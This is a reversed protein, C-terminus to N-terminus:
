IEHDSTEVNWPLVTIEVSIYTDEDVPFNPDEPNTDDDPDVGPVYPLGPGTIKNINLVYFNNRLVGRVNEADQVWIRYYGIGNEYKKSFHAATYDTGIASQYATESWFTNDSKKVYFSTGAAITGKTRTGGATYGTIVTNATPTFQLKIIAATTNGVMKKANVNELAYYSNLLNNAVSYENVATWSTPTALKTFYENNPTLTMINQGPTVVTEYTDGGQQVLYSQKAEVVLAYELNAVSGGVVELTAAKKKVAIKATNRQVQMPLPAGLAEAATQVTALTTPVGSDSAMVFGNSTIFDPDAVGNIPTDGFIGGKQASIADQLDTTPNLVAYVTKNGTTTKLATTLKYVNGGVLTFDAVSFLGQHMFGTLDDVVYVGIQTVKSEEVSAAPDPARLEITKPFSVAVAMYTDAGNVTPVGGAGTENSCSNFALTMMVLAMMSFISKKM